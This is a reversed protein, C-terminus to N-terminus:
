AGPTHPKKDRATRGHIRDELHKLSDPLAIMESMGDRSGGSPRSTIQPRRTDPEHLHPVNSASLNQPIRVAPLNLEKRARGVELPTFWLKRGDQAIVVMGGDPLSRCSLPQGSQGPLMFPHALHAALTQEVHNKPDM